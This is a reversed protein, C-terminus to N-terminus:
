EPYVDRLTMRSNDLLQGEHDLGQNAARLNRWMRNQCSVLSYKPLELVCNSKIEHCIYLHFMLLFNVSRPCARSEENMGVGQSKVERPRPRGIKLAESPGDEKRYSVTDTRSKRRQGTRPQCSHLLGSVATPLLALQYSYLSWARTWESAPERPRKSLNLCLPPPPLSCGPTLCM